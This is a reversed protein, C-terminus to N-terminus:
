FQYYKDNNLNINNINHNYINACFHRNMIIEFKDLNKCINLEIIIKIYIKFRHIYKFFVNMIPNKM